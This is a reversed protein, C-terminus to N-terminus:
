AAVAGPQDVEHKIKNRAEKDFGSSLKDRLMKLEERFNTPSMLKGLDIFSKKKKIGIKM